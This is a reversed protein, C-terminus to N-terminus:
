FGYKLNVNVMPGLATSATFLEDDSPFQVLRKNTMNQGILSLTLQEQIRWNISLDIINYAPTDFSEHKSTHKALLQLSIDELPSWQVRAYFQKNKYDSGSVEVELFDLEAVDYNLYTYGFLANFEPTIQWGLAIEYGIHSAKGENVLTNVLTPIGDIVEGTIKGIFISNLDSTFASMNINFVDYSYRYGIEHSVSYDIANKSHTRLILPTMNTDNPFSATFERDQDANILLRYGKAYAGWISHQQNINYNFRVSPSSEWHEFLPMYDWRNALILKFKKDFFLIEDQLFVGRNVSSLKENFSSGGFDGKNNAYDAGFSILHQAIAYNAATNFAFVDQSSDDGDIGWEVQNGFLQTYWTLGNEFRHDIRINYSLHDSYSEGHEYVLRHTDPSTLRKTIGDTNERQLVQAKFSSKESYQVDLQGGLHHGRTHDNPLVSMEQETKSLSSTGKVFGGFIRYSSIDNIMAGYRIDVVKQVKNGVSAKVAIGQTDSSHRSIINLLGNNSSNGWLSGSPGRVLEIREIDEVPYNLAEWSIGNIIPDSVNQGDIMVLLNSNFRSAASRISIAWQNNDIQRADVGLLLKLLQPLRTYGSMEIDRHELVFISAPTGDISQSRKMASTTQVELSMLKMLEDPTPLAQAHAPLSLSVLMAIICRKLM